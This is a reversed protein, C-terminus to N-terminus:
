HNPSFDEKSGSSDFCFLSCVCSVSPPSPVTCVLFAVRINNYVSTLYIPAHDDTYSGCRVVRQRLHASVMGVFM